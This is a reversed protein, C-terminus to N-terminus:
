VLFDESECYRPGLSEDRIQNSTYSSENYEVISGSQKNCFVEPKNTSRVFDNHNGGYAPPTIDIHPIPTNNAEDEVIRVLHLVSDDAEKIRDYLLATMELSSESLETIHYTLGHGDETVPFERHLYSLDQGDMVANMVHSLRDYVKVSVEVAKKIMLLRNEAVERWMKNQHKLSSLTLLSSEYKNKYSTGKFVRESHIVTELSDVTNNNENVSSSVTASSRKQDKNNGNSPTMNLPKDVIPEQRNSTISYSPNMINIKRTTPFYVDTSLSM